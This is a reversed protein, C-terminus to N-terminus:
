EREERWRQEAAGRRAPTAAFGGPRLPAGDIFDRMPQNCRLVANDMGQVGHAEGLLTVYAVHPDAFVAMAARVCEQVDPMALVGLLEPRVVLHPVGDGMLHIFPGYPTDVTRLECDPHGAVFVVAQGVLSLEDISRELATAAQPARREARRVRVGPPHQGKVEFQFDFSSPGVQLITVDSPPEQGPSGHLATLVRSFEQVGTFSRRLLM